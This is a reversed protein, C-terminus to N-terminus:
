RPLNLRSFIGFYTKALEDYRKAAEKQTDFYGSHIRKHNVQIRAIWKNRNKLFHVGKYFNNTDKRKSSNRVNETRTAIRLNERQNDLGNGNKHDIERVDNVGLIFRHMRITKQKGFPGIAMRAYETTKLHSYHWSYKSVKPYDIDDVIAYKGHTLPIYKM